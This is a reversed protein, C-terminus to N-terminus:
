YGHNVPCLILYKKNSTHPSLVTGDQWEVYVGLKTAAKQVIERNYRFDDTYQYGAADTFGTSRYDGWRIPFSRSKYKDSLIMNDEMLKLRQAAEQLLQAGEKDYMGKSRFWNVRNRAWSELRKALEVNGM